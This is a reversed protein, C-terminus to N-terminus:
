LLTKYHGQHYRQSIATSNSATLTLLVTIGLLFFSFFFFTAAFEYLRDAVCRPLSQLEDSRRVPEVAPRPARTPDLYRQLDPQSTSTSTKERGTENTGPFAAAAAQGGSTPVPRNYDKRTDAYEYSSVRWHGQPGSYICM